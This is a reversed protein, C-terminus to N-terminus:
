EGVARSRLPALTLATAVATWLQDASFPKALIQCPGAQRHSKWAQLRPRDASYLIAPVTATAPGQWVWCMLDWGADYWELDLEVLLLDPRDMDIHRQAERAAQCAVTAYGVHQLLEECVALTAADPDVILILPVTRPM